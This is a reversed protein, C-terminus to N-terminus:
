IRTPGHVHRPSLIAYRLWTGARLSIATRSGYRTRALGYEVIAIFRYYDANGDVIPVIMLEHLHDIRSCEVFWGILLDQGHSGIHTDGSLGARPKQLAAKLQNIPM